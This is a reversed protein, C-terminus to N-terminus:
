LIENITFDMPRGEVLLTVRSKLAPKDMGQVPFRKGNLHYHPSSPELNLTAYGSARIRDVRQFLKNMSLPKIFIISGMMPYDQATSLLTTKFRVPPLQPHSPTRKIDV